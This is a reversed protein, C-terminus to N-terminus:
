GVDLGLDRFPNRELVALFYCAGLLAHSVAVPALRGTRQYVWGWAVGAGLTPWFLGPLPLHCAAFVLGGALAATWGTGGGLRRGLRGVLYGQTVYQQLLAFPLYLATTAALLGLSRVPAGRVWGLGVLGAAAALTALLLGVQAPRGGAPAAPRWAGPGLALLLAGLAFAPVDAALVRWPGLCYAAGLVVALAEAPGLPGPAEPAEVAVDREPPAEAV